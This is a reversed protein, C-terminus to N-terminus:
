TIKYLTSILYITSNLKNSLLNFYLNHFITGHHEKWRHFLKSQVYFLDTRSALLTWLQEGVQLVLDHIRHPPGRKVNLLLIVVHIVKTKNIGIQRYDRIQSVIERDRLTLQSYKYHMHFTHLFAQSSFGTVLRELKILKDVFQSLPLLLCHGLAFWEQNLISRYRRPKNLIYIITRFIYMYIITIAIIRFLYNIGLLYARLTTSPRHYCSWPLLVINIDVLSISYLSSLKRCLRSKRNSWMVEHRTRLRNIRPIIILMGIKLQNEVINMGRTWIRVHLLKCLIQIHRGM